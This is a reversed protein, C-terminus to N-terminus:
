TKTNKLNKTKSNSNKHKAHKRKQTKGKQHKKPESNQIEHCKIQKQNIKASKRQNETLKMSKWQNESIERFGALKESRALHGPEYAPEGRPWLIQHNESSKGIGGSILDNESTWFWQKKTLNWPNWSFWHFDSFIM